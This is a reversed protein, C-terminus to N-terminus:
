LRTSLRDDQSDSVEHLEDTNQRELVQGGLLQELEDTLELCGQGKVGRVLLNVNGAADIVVEIEQVESM